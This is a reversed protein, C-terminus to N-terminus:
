GECADDEKNRQKSPKQESEEGGRGGSHALDQEFGGRLVCLDPESIGQDSTSGVGQAAWAEGLEREGETFWVVGWVFLVQEQAFVAALDIEGEAWLGVVFVSEGERGYGGFSGDVGFLAGKNAVSRAREFCGEAASSGVFDFFM